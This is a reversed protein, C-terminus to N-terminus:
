DTGEDCKESMAAEEELSILAPNIYQSSKKGAKRKGWKELEEVDFEVNRIGKKFLYQARHHIANLDVEENEIKKWAEDNFSITNGYESRM